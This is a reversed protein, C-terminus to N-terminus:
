TRSGFKTVRVPVIPSADLLYIHQREAANQRLGGFSDCFFESAFSAPLDAVSDFPELAQDVVSTRRSWRGSLWHAAL